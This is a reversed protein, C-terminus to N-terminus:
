FDERVEEGPSKMLASSYPKVNLGPNPLHFLCTVHCKCQRISSYRRAFSAPTATYILPRTALNSPPPLQLRDISSFALRLAFITAHNFSIMKSSLGRWNLARRCCCCWEQRERHSLYAFFFVTLSPLLSSITASLWRAVPWYTEESTQVLM